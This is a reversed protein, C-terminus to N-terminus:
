EFAVVVVTCMRKYQLMKDIRVGHLALRIAEVCPAFLCAVLYAGCALTGIGVDEEEHAACLGICCDDVAHQLGVFAHNGHLRSVDIDVFRSCYFGASM